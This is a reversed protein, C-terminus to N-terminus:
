SNADGQIQSMNQNCFGFIPLCSHLELYSASCVSPMNKLRSYSATKFSTLESELVLMAQSETNTPIQSHPLPPNPSHLTHTTSPNLTGM